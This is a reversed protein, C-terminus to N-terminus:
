QIQPLKLPFKWINCTTGNIIIESNNDYEMWTCKYEDQGVNYDYSVLIYQRLSPDYTDNWMSFPKIYGPYKLDGSLERRNRNYLQYRDHIYWNVLDRYTSGGSEKWYNTRYQYASGTLVGNDIMLSNSDYIKFSVKQSNLVNKNLQAIIKNDAPDIGSEGTIFVDGYAVMYPWQTTNYTTATTQKIDEGLITFIMEKNGSNTWGSVDGIPIDVSIEAYGTESLDAGMVEVTNAYNVFVNTSKYEWLDETPRKVLWHAGTPIRISYYCKYDWATPGGSGTSVPLFKWKINITSEENSVTFKFRTSIGAYHKNQSNYVGSVYYQPVGLRILSNQIGKYPKGPGM